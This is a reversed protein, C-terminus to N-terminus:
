GKTEKFKIEKTQGEELWEKIPKSVPKKIQKIYKFFCKSCRYISDACPYVAETGCKCKGYDNATTMM